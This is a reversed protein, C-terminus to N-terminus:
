QLVYGRQSMIFKSYDLVPSGDRLLALLTTHFKKSRFLENYAKPVADPFLSLLVADIEDRSKGEQHKDNIHEFCHRHFPILLHRSSHSDAKALNNYVSDFSGPLQSGVHDKWKDNLATEDMFPMNDDFDKVNNQRLSWYTCCFAQRQNTDWYLPAHCLFYSIYKLEDLTNPLDGFGRYLNYFMAADTPVGSHGPDGRVLDVFEVFEVLGRLDKKIGDELSLNQYTENDSKIILVRQDKEDVFTSELLDGIYQGATHAFYVAAGLWRGVKRLDKGARRRNGVGDSEWLELKHHTIWECLPIMTIHDIGYLGGQGFFLNVENAPKGVEKAWTCYRRREEEDKLYIISINKREERGMVETLDNNSYPFKLRFTDPQLLRVSVYVSFYSGVVRSALKGAMGTFLM